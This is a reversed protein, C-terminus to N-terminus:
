LGLAAPRAASMLFRNSQSGSSMWPEFPTKSMSHSPSNTNELCRVPRKGSGPSTSAAMEFSDFGYIEAELGDLGGGIYM